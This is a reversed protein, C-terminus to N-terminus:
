GTPNEPTPPPLEALPKSPLAAPPPVLDLQMQRKSAAERDSSHWHDDLEKELWETLQLCGEYSQLFYQTDVPLLMGPRVRVHTGAKRVYTDNAVGRNHIYIDRTAKVEVYKHFAPCELLKLSLLSEVEEAFESPSKYSLENLLIDTARLHVDDITTAQLVIEMAIKNKSGLKQPYKLVVARVLDGLLADIITVIRIIGNLPLQNFALFQYRGLLENKRYTRTGNMPQNDARWGVPFHVTITDDQSENWARAAIDFAGYTLQALESQEFLNAQALTILGYLKNGLNEM